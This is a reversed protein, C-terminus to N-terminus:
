RIIMMKKNLIKGNYLIRYFYMGSAVNLGNQDQGNWKITHVGAPQSTEVLTQVERGQIDYIKISVKGAEPLAYQIETEPNFPNPYNGPSAFEKPLEASTAAPDNEPQQKQLTELFQKEMEPTWEGSAIKMLALLYSEPFATEFQQMATAANKLDQLGDFYIQWKTFLANEALDSGSFKQEGSTCNELATRYNGDMVQQRTLYALAKGGVRLDPYDAVVSEVFSQNNETYRAKYNCLIIRNLSLEAELTAPYNAIVFKYEELAADYEQKMEYAYGLGYHYSADENGEATLTGSVPNAPLTPVSKQLAHPDPNPDSGLTNLYWVNGYVRPPTIGGWYCYNAYIGPQGIPPVFLSYVDYTGNTYYSNRSTELTSNGLLPHSTANIYVGYSGNYAVVNGPQEPNDSGSLEPSSGNCYIGYDDNDYIMNRVLFPNSYNLTLGNGSTCDYLRNDNLGPGSSNGYCNLNVYSNQHVDNNNFCFNDGNTLSAGTWNNAIENSVIEQWATGYATYIGMTCNTITCHNIAPSSKYCYAGYSANQITCYELSCAADVSSDEFKIGYWKSSGSKNFFVYQSVNGEAILTGNVIIKKGSPVYVHTGPAITLTIGSPITVDGTLTHTGSWTENRTLTGSTTPPDGLENSFWSM